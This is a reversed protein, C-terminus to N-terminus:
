QLILTALRDQKPFRVIGEERDKRNERARDKTMREKQWVNRKTGKMLNDQELKERQDENTQRRQNKKRLTM